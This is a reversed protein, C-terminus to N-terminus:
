YDLKTFGIGAVAYKVNDIIVICGTSMSTFLNNEKVFDQRSNLPNNKKDNFRRFMYDLLRAAKDEKSHNIITGDEVYEPSVTYNTEYVKVFSKFEDSTPPELMFTSLAHPLLKMDPYYIEVHMYSTETAENIYVINM